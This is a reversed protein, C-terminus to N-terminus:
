IDDRDRAKSSTWALVGLLVMGGAFLWGPDVAASGYAMVAVLGNILLAAGLM